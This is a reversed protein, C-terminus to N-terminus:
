RETAIIRLSGEPGPTLRFAADVYTTTTDEHVIAPGDIAFREGLQSRHLVAFPLIKGRAFSFADVTAAGSPLTVHPTANTKTRRPLPTRVTARVAVLEVPEDMQHGFTREYELMFLSRAAEAGITLRGAPEALSITLSHEQGVYRMDLAISRELSAGNASTTRAALDDFLERLLENIEDITGEELPAIRTRAATQTLDAGLLGWASFNGAYPPILIHEIELERALLTAFLPGAGGFALLSAERPDQGQEVTIERIANAMSATTITIIGRAVEDVDLSLHEALPELASRSRAPDLRIKGALVGQGLMGLHLAADTVTPDSGGRGYCAPGPTAGASEPGVKLLGGADVHAISGGGAGISRVDVWAAQIPMGLVRGEYMVRARGSQILCTDFSTGGVDAAIVDGLGHERAFEAAGEAGAVPGSLITEFPRDVAQSFTMAGGGSRTVLLDGRFGAIGLRDHLRKLYGGVRPRVTADIVTTSTREYERYEGSVRHSMSVDGDFGLEVLLAAAAREHEPNAYANMFAIAISRVGARQLVAVATRVGDLELPTEVSGDARIRERIPLRLHRPVLPRPPKWFLDYPDDRDGRRVELVDRFGLTCLLGVGRAKGELLSNLGVTTGHLFYRSAALLEPSLAESVATMVGDDPSEPVTPHKAVRTEGTSDDYFILDTFTGGVDVGVRTAM